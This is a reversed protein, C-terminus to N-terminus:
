EMSYDKNTYLPIIRGHTLVEPNRKLYRLLTLCYFVYFLSNIMLIYITSNILINYNSVM